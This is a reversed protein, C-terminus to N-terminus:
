LDIASREAASAIAPPYNIYVQLQVYLMQPANCIERDQSGKYSHYATKMRQNTEQGMKAVRHPFQIQLVPRELIPFFHRCTEALIQLEM